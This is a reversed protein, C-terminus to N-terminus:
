KYYADVFARTYAQSVDLPELVGIEVMANHVSQWTEANMVGPQTDPPAILPIMAQLLAALSRKQNALLQDGYNELFWAGIEDPNRVAYQMGRVFANVFRQVVAPNEHLMAETTFLVNPYSAVGYDTFYLIDLDIGTSPLQAAADTGYGVMADVQGTIFMTSGAVLSGDPASVMTIENIDLGLESAFVRFMTGSKWVLVTKGILDQPESIGKGDLAIVASPDRQYISAIAVVPQGQQRAELVRDASLIGFSSKGALVQALVDADAQEVTSHTFVISPQLNEQEFYGQSVAGYYGVQYLQPSVDILTVPAPPTKDPKSQDDSNGCASLVLAILIIMFLSARMHRSQPIM